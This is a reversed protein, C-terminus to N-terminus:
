GAVAGRPQGVREHEIENNGAFPLDARAAARGIELKRADFPAPITHDASTRHAGQDSKKPTHGSPNATAPAQFRLTPFFM